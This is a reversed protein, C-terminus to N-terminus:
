SPCFLPLEVGSIDPGHFPQLVSINQLPECYGLLNSSIDKKKKKGLKSTIQLDFLYGQCIVWLYKRYLLNPLMVTTVIPNWVLM